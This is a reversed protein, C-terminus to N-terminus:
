ADKFEEPPVEYIKDAYEELQDNWYNEPVEQDIKNEQQLATHTSKFHRILESLFDYVPGTEYNVLDEETPESHGVIRTEQSVHLKTDTATEPYAIEIIKRYERTVGDVGEQRYEVTVGEIRVPRLEITKNKMTNKYQGYM